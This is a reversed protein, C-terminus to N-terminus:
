CCRWEHALLKEITNSIDGGTLTGDWRKQAVPKVAVEEIYENIEEQLNMSMAGNTPDSGDHDLARWVVPRYGPFMAQFHIRGEREFAVVGAAGPWLGRVDREDVDVNRAGNPERDAVLSIYVEWRYTKLQCIFKFRALHRAGDGLAALWAKFLGLQGKGYPAKRVDFEWRVEALHHALAESRIQKNIFCTVPLPLPSHRAYQTYSPKTTFDYIKDRLERPLSLLNSPLSHVIGGTFPDM